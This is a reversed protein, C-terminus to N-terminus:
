VGMDLNEGHRLRSLFFAILPTISVELQYTELEHPASIEKM